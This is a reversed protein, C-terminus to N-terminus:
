GGRLTHRLRVSALAFCAVAFTLLQLSEPLVESLRGGRVFIDLFGELAWSLPSINALGQMVPPMILKPVMIGGIAALILVSTAGFTTAQEQTRAFTAIVLGYGIAALNTAVSVLVIAAPADGIALADGGLLPLLYRGELLVLVLQIENIIFYPLVKGAVFVWRPAAMTQLRLLSGQAQEKIFTTSLPIVLFFMALITWAPANQQVSTPIPDDATQAADGVAAFAALGTAPARLGLAALEQFLLTSEAERLVGNLRATVLSRYDRRLTPDALLRVEVLKGPKANEQLQRRLMTRATQTAQKPIVVAFKFEGATLRRELATEDLNALAQVKFFPSGTFAETIKKGTAGGDHDVIALSFQVGAKEHFSDRLALSMILVFVAPMVLLIMLAERDRLVLRTEKVVAAALQHLAFAM